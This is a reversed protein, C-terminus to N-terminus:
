RKIKSLLTKWVEAVKRTLFELPTEIVKEDAAILHNLATAQHDLREAIEDLLTVLSNIRNNTAQIGTQADEVSHILNGITTLSIGHGTSVNNLQNQLRRLWALIEELDMSSNEKGLIERVQQFLYEDPNPPTM